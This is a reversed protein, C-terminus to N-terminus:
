LLEILKEKKSEYEEESIINNDFLAKLKLLKDAPDGEPVEPKVPKVTEYNALEEQLVELVKIINRKNKGYDVIGYILKSDISLISDGVSTPLVSIQM